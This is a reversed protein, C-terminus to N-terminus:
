VVGVRQLGWSGGGQVVGGEVEENVVVFDRIATAEGAEDLAGVADLGTGDEGGIM